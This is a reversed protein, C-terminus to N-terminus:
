IKGGSALGRGIATAKKEYLKIMRRAKNMHKPNSFGIGTVWKRLQHIGNLQIRVEGNGIQYVGFRFGLKELIDVFQKQMHSPCVKM